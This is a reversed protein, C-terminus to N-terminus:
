RGPDKVVPAVTGQLLQPVRLWVRLIKNLVEKHAAVIAARNTEMKIPLTPVELMPGM